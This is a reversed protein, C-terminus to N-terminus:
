QRLNKQLLRNHEHVTKSSNRDNWYITDFNPLLCKFLQTVIYSDTSLGNKSNEYRVSQRQVLFDNGQMQTKVVDFPNNGLTSFCGAMMGGVLAKLPTMPAKGDETIIDKYKNFFMFRLGQNSSQKLITAALGQYLGRM